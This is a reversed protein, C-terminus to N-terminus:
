ENACVGLERALIIGDKLGAKYAVESVVGSYDLLAEYQEMDREDSCKIKRFLTNVEENKAIVPDIREWIFDGFLKNFRDDAM